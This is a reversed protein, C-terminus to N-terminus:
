LKDIIEELKQDIEKESQKPMDERPKEAQKVAKMRRKEAMALKRVLDEKDMKKEVRHKLLLYRFVNHNMRVDENIKGIAEEPIELNFNFYGFYSTLQHKIPYALKIKEPNKSFTIAGGNSTISRELEQATKQVDTEELGSTVHFALEYYQKPLDAM